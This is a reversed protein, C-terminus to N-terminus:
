IFGLSSSIYLTDTDNSLPFNESLKFKFPITIVENPEVITNIDISFRQINIDIYSQKNNICEIYKHNVDIYIHFIKKEIEGGYIHVIGELKDGPGLIDTALLTDVKVGRVCSANCIPKRFFSM